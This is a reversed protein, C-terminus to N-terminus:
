IPSNSAVNASNITGALALVRGLHAAMAERDLEGQVKFGVIESGDAAFFVMSPPGYLGFREMLAQDSANNKTVDARILHFEALQSSVEPAPFVRREM